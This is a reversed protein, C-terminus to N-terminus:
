SIQWRESARPQIQLLGSSDRQRTGTRCPSGSGCTLVSAGSWPELQMHFIVNEIVVYSLFWVCKPETLNFLKVGKLDRSKEISTICCGVSWAWPVGPPLRGTWHARCSPSTQLALLAHLLACAFM